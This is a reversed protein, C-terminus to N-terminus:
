DNKINRKHLESELMVSFQTGAFINTLLLLDTDPIESTQHENMVVLEKVHLDKSIKTIKFYQESIWNITTDSLNMSSKEFILKVVRSIEDKIEHLSDVTIEKNLFSKRLTSSMYSEFLTVFKAM